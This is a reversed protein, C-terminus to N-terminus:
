ICIVNLFHLYMGTAIVRVGSMLCPRQSDRHLWNMNEMRGAQLNEVRGIAQIKKLYNPIGTHINFDLFLTQGGRSFASQSGSFILHQAEQKMEDYSMHEVYPAYMINIYGIGLAGAYYAQM